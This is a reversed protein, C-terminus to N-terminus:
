WGIAPMWHSALVLCSLATGVVFVAIFGGSSNDAPNDSMANGFLVLVAVVVTAIFIVGALIFAGM